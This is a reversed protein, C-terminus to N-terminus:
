NQKGTKEQALLDKLEEKQEKRLQQLKERQTQSLIPKMKSDSAQVIKEWHELREKRPITPTFCVQGVEGTEQEVIPKIKTKQDDNLDLEESLNQMKMAFYQSPAKSLDVTPQPPLAERRLIPVTTTGSLKSPFTLTDEGVLVLLDLGAAYEVSSVGYPPTYLVVYITDRVQVSVDYRATGTDSEGPANQHRSVAVVTGRQYKSSETQAPAPVITICTLVVILPIRM